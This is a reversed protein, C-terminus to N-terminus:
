ALPKKENIENIMKILKDRNDGTNIWENIKRTKESPKRPLDDLSPDIEIKGGFVEEATRMKKVKKM